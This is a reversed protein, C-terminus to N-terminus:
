FFPFAFLVVCAPSAIAIYRKGVRDALPAFISLGLSESAGALLLGFLSVNRGLDFRGAAYSLIFTNGIYFGSVTILCLGVALAAAVPSNRLLEMLPFRVEARREKIREFAPSELVRM